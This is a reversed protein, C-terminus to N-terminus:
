ARKQAEILERQKKAADDESPSVEKSEEETADEGEEGYDGEEEGYEASRFVFLYMPKSYSFNFTDCSPALAAFAGPIRFGLGMSDLSFVLKEQVAKVATISM